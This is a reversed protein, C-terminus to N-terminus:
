KIKVFVLERYLQILTQFFTDHTRSLTTYFFSFNEFFSCENAISNYLITNKVLNLFEVKQYTICSIVFLSYQKYKLNYLQRLCTSNEFYLKQLKVRVPANKLFCWFVVLRLRFRCFWLYFDGKVLHNHSQNKLNQMNLLKM